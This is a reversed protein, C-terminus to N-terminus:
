PRKGREDPIISFWVADHIPIDFIYKGKRGGMDETKNDILPRAHAAISKEATDM